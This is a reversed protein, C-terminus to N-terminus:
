IPEGSKSKNSKFHAKIMELNQYTIFTFSVLFHVFVSPIYQTILANHFQVCPFPDDPSNIIKVEIDAVVKSVTNGRWINELSHM